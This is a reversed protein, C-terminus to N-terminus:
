SDSLPRLTRVECTSVWYGRAPRVEAVATEESEACYVVVQGERNARGAKAKSPPPPGIEAGRYPVRWRQDDATWGLRARYFSTGEAITRELVELQGEFYPGVDLEADPNEKVEHCYMEWNEVAPWAVSRRYPDLANIPWQGSDDDWDDNLIDELLGTSRGTSHLKDSFVSWTEQVLSILPDGDNSQHFMDLLNHFYFTLEAISILRRGPSRCYDCKGIESSREKVVGRVFPHDFCSM